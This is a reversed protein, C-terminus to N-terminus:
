KRARTGGNHGRTNRLIWKGYKRLSLHLYGYIPGGTADPRIEFKRSRKKKGNSLTVLGRVIHISVEETKADLITKLAMTWVEHSLHELRIPLDPGRYDNRNHAGLPIHPGDWDLEISLSQITTAIRGTNTVQIIITQVRDSILIGQFATVKIRPSSLAFQWLQLLLATLGTLAGVISLWIQASM